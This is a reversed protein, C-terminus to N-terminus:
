LRGDYELRELHGGRHAPRVGDDMVGILAALVGGEREPLPALGEADAGRHPRAAIRVIVRHGLAKERRKFHLEERFMTEGRVDVGPEGDEAVDFAPVIRM